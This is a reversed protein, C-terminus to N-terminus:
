TGNTGNVTVVQGLIRMITSINQWVQPKYISGDCRTSEMQIINQERSGEYDDDRIGEM